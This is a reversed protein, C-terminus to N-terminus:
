TLQASRLSAVSVNQCLEIVLLIHICPILQSSLLMITTASYWLHLKVSLATLLIKVRLMQLEQELRQNAMHFSMIQQQLLPDTALSVFYMYLLLLLSWNSATVFDWPEFNHMYRQFPSCASEFLTEKIVVRCVVYAWCAIIFSVSPTIKVPTEKTFALLWLISKQKLSTVIRATLMIMIMILVSKLFCLSLLFYCKQCNWKVLAHPLQNQHRVNPSQFKM